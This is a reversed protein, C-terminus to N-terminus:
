PAPYPDIVTAANGALWINLQDKLWVEALTGDALLAAYEQDTMEKSWGSPVDVMEGVIYDVGETTVDAETKYPFLDYTVFRKVGTYAGNEDYQVEPKPFHIASIIVNNAPIDMGNKMAVAVTNKVAM